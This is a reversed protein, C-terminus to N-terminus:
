QIQTPLSWFPSINNAQASQGPLWMPPASPDAMTGLRNKAIAGLWIQKCQSVGNAKCAAPSTAATTRHGYDRESSFVVWYYENSITPAWHAWTVGNDTTAGGNMAALDTTWAGTADTLMLRAGTGRMSSFNRWAQRAANFIVLSGDPSFSPFFFNTYAGIPSPVLLTPTGFTHQGGAFSYTMKAIRGGDLDIWQNATPTSTFVVHNGDASWDPMMASRGAPLVSPLNSAVPAGTDPDYLALTGNSMGVMAVSKSDDPYPNGIPAFTTYSGRITKQDANYSEDWAQTVGNYKLFGAYLQGCDNGICRSYGIRSGNRSVSHCSTCSGKVLSPPTPDGFTQSMINGQSSAWYYIATKDINDHTVTLSRPASTYKTAPAGQALAEVTFALNEGAATGVLSEWDRAQLLAEVATTYVDVKAFSSRLAVHFLDNGAPTWQFEVSPINRPSVAKDIPYEILPTRAADTAATAQEFLDAANPPTGAGVVVSGTLDVKLSGRGTLAGCTAEITTKGGHALITLTAGNFSGFSADVALACRPTIDTQKSGSVGVVTYGQSATTGLEVTHEAFPPEVEIREFDLGDDGGGSNGGCAVLLVLWLVRM